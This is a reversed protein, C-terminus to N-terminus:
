ASKETSMEAPKEAVHEAPLELSVVFRDGHTRVDFRARDGYATDLRQRVNRLGISAGKRSPTEPDFNNEIKISLNKASGRGIEIRIWGGETLNSVGHRVANEVLPQLLLPPVLYELAGPEVMEEL